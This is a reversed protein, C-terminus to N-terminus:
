GLRWRLSETPLVYVFSCFFSPSEAVAMSSLIHVSHVCVEFVLHKVHAPHWKDPLVQRLADADRSFGSVIGSSSTFQMKFVLM